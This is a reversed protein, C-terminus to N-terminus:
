WQMDAANFSEDNADVILPSDALENPNLSFVIKATFKIVNPRKNTSQRLIRQKHLRTLRDIIQASVHSKTKRDSVLTAKGKLQYGTLKNKDFVGVTCWPNKKLNRLTKHKFLELWYISGDKDVHIATRPSINCIAKNSTGVLLIREKRIMQIVKDPISVM